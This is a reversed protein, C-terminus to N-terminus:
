GLNDNSRPPQSPPPQSAEWGSKVNDYISNVLNAIDIPDTEVPTDVSTEIPNSSAATNKGTAITTSTTNAPKIELGAQCLFVLLNKWIPIPTGDPTITPVKIVKPSDLDSICCPTAGTEDPTEQWESAHGVLCIVLTSWGADIDEESLSGLSLLATKVRDAAANVINSPYHEDHWPARVVSECFLPCDLLTIGCGLSIRNAPRYQGLNPQTLGCIM